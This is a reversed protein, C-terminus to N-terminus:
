NQHLVKQIGAKQEMLFLVVAVLLIGKNSYKIVTQHRNM